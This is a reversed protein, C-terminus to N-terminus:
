LLFTWLMNYIDRWKLILIYAYFSAIISHVIHTAVLKNFTIWNAPLVIHMNLDLNGQVLLTGTTNHTNGWHRCERLMLLNLFNTSFLTWCKVLRYMSLFTLTIFYIQKKFWIEPIHDTKNISFVFYGTFCVSIACKILLWM